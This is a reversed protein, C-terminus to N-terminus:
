LPDRESMKKLFVPNLYPDPFEVREWMKYYGNYRYLDRGIFDHDGDEPEQKFLANLIRRLEGCVTKKPKPRKYREKLAKARDLYEALERDTM